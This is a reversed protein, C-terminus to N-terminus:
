ENEIFKLFEIGFETIKMAKFAGTSSVRGIGADFLLSKSHLNQIYYDFKSQKIGYYNGNRYKQFEQFKNSKRKLEAVLAKKKKKLSPLSPGSGVYETQHKKIEENITKLESKTGDIRILLESSGNLLDYHIDLIEIEKESLENILDLYTDSIEIDDCNAVAKNLVDKFRIIKEKSKTRSVRSLIAEFTEGFNEPDLTKIDIKNKELHQLFSEVFSNVREQKIRGYQEFFLEDLATGFSGLLSFGIKRAIIKENNEFLKLSKEKKSM